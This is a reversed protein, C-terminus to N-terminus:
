FHNFGIRAEDAGVHAGMEIPEEPMARRYFHEAVPAPLFVQEIKLFCHVLHGAEGCLFQPEVAAHQLFTHRRVDGDEISVLDVIKEAILQGVDDVRLFDFPMWWSHFGHGYVALDHDFVALAVVNKWTFYTPLLKAPGISVSILVFCD